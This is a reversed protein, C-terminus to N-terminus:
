QNTAEFRLQDRPFYDEIPDAAGQWRIVVGLASEDVFIVPKWGTLGYAFVQGSSFDTSDTAVKGPGDTPAPGHKGAQLQDLRRVIVREAELWQSAGDILFEVRYRWSDGSQKLELLHADEFYQTRSSRNALVRLPQILHTISALHMDIAMQEVFKGQALRDSQGSDLRTALDRVLRDHAPTLSQIHQMYTLLLSHVSSRLTEPLEAGPQCLAVGRLGRAYPAELIEAIGRAAERATASSSSDSAYKRALLIIADLAPQLEKQAAQILDQKEATYRNIYSKASSPVLQQIDVPGNRLLWAPREDTLALYDGLQSRKSELSLHPWQRAMERGLVQQYDRKCQQYVSWQKSLPATIADFSTRVPDSLGRRAQLMYELAMLFDTTPALRKALQALTQRSTKDLQGDNLLGDLEARIMRVAERQQARLDSCTSEFKAKAEAYPLDAHAELVAEQSWSPAAFGGVSPLLLLLCSIKRDLM